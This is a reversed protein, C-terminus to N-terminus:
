FVAWYGLPASSVSGTERTNWFPIAFGEVANNSQHFSSRFHLIQVEENLLVMRNQCDPLTHYAAVIEVRQGRLALRRDEVAQEQPSMGGVIQAPIDVHRARQQM